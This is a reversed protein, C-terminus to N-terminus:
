RRRKKAAAAKEAKEKEAAELAAKEAAAKDELAKAAAKLDYDQIIKKVEGADPATPALALYIRYHQVAEDPKQVTAFAIGLNRQADAFMADQELAKKFNEIAVDYQKSQLAAQGVATLRRAKDTPTEVATTQKSGFVRETIVDKFMFVGVGTGAILLVTLVIPVTMSKKQETALMEAREAGILTPEKKPAAVNMSPLAINPLVPLGDGLTRNAGSLSANSQSPTNGMRRPTPPPVMAGAAPAVAWGDAGGQSGLAPQQGSDLAGFSGGLNGEISADDSIHRRVDRTNSASPMDFEPFSPLQLHAPLEGSGAPASARAPAASASPAGFDSPMSFDIDPLSFSADNTTMGSAMGSPPAAMVGTPENDFGGSPPSPNGFADDTFPTQSRPTSHEDEMQAPRTRNGSHEFEMQSAAREALAAAEDAEEQAKRKQADERHGQLMAMMAPDLTMVSTAGEPMHEYPKDDDKGLLESLNGPPAEFVRTPEDGFGSGGRVPASAERTPEDNISVPRPQTDPFDSSEFLEAALKSSNDDFADSPPPPPAKAARGDDGNRM